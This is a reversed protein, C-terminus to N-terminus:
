TWFIPHGWWAGAIFTTCLYECLCFCVYVFFYFLIFYKFGFHKRLASHLSYKCIFPTKPWPSTHHCFSDCHPLIQYALHWKIAMSVIVCAMQLLVHSYHFIQTQATLSNSFALSLLQIKCSGVWAWTRTFKFLFTSHLLSKVFPTVSIFRSLPFIGISFYISCFQSLRVIDGSPFPILLSTGEIGTSM